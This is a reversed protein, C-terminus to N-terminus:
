HKSCCLLSDNEGPGGGMGEHQVIAHQTIQCTVVVFCFLLSKVPGGGGGGFGGGLVRIRRMTRIDDDAISNTHSFLGGFGGQKKKNKNKTKKFFIYNFFVGLFYPKSAIM